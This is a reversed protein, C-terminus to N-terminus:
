VLNFKSYNEIVIKYFELVKNVQTNRDFNSLDYESKVKGQKFKQLMLKKLQNIDGIEFSLNEPLFESIPVKSLIIEKKFFMSELIVLGFPEFRSPLVFCDIISYYPYIDKQNEVFEIDPHNDTISLLNKKQEGDGILILKSGILKLEKFSNILLDLNKSKNFRGFYGFIYKYNKTNHKKKLFSVYNKDINDIKPLWNLILKKDIKLYKIKEFQNKNICIIGNMHDHEKKKYDIHLTTIKPIQINKLIKCSIGLHCHVIQIELKKLIKKISYTKFFNGIEFYHVKPSIHDKISVKNNQKKIILYVEHGLYSQYNALDVCYKESGAFNNTLIIHSIKM